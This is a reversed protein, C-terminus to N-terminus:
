FRSDKKTLPPIVIKEISGGANQLAEFSSDSNLALSYEKEPFIELPPIKECDKESLRCIVADQLLVSVNGRNYFILSSKERKWALKVKPMDPEVKISLYPFVDDPPGTRGSIVQALADPVFRVAFQHERSREFHALLVRLTRAAGPNLRIRKPSIFFLNTPSGKELGDEGISVEETYAFLSLPVRGKNEISLNEIGRDGKRFVIQARNLSLRVWADSDSSSFEQKLLPESEQTKEAATGIASFRLPAHTASSKQFEAACSTLIISNNESIVQYSPIIEKTLDFVFRTKQPHSGIRLGQVYALGEITFSAWSTTKFEYVDLVLRPPSSLSFYKYSHKKQLNLRLYFGTPTHNPCNSTNIYVGEHHLIKEQAVTNNNTFVAALLSILALLATRLYTRSFLKSYIFRRM